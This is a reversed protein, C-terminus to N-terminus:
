VLVERRGMVMHYMMHDSRRVFALLGPKAPNGMLLLFVGTVVVVVVMSSGRASNATSGASSAAM